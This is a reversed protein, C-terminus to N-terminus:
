EVVRLASPIDTRKLRRGTFLPALSVSVIGALAALAYTVASISIVTGLDPMTERMSMDIIWRLIGYGVATGIMTALAGTLVAETMNGRIVRPASVGYAFLTAHERVREEANIAAANYAILFAMVMAIAVTIILVDTFQSM